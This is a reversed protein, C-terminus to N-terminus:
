TAPSGAPRGGDGQRARARAIRCLSSSATAGRVSPVGRRGGPGGHRLGGERPTGRVAVGTNGGEKKGTPGGIAEAKGTVTGRRAGRQTGSAIAFRVPELEEGERWSKM